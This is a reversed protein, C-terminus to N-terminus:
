PRLSFRRPVVRIRNRVSGENLVKADVKGSWESLLSYENLLPFGPMGKSKTEPCCSLFSSYM